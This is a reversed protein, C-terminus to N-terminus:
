KGKGPQDPYKCRKAKESLYYDEGLYFSTQVTQEEIKMVANLGIVSSVMVLLIVLISVRKSMKLLENYFM